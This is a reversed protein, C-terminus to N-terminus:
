YLGQIYYAVAVMDEEDMHSSITQMIDNLDNKRQKAKFDKM